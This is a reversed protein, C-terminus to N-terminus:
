ITIDKWTKNHKISSITEPAVGFQIGIAKCTAGSALMYKIQIVVAINLKTHSCNRSNEARTARRCNGPEYNGANDIRDIQLDTSPKCRMDSLFSEFSNAWESCMSIGKGGYKKFLSSAPKFCRARIGEWIRYEPPQKSYWTANSHDMCTKCIAMIGCRRNGRRYFKTVPKRRHCKTCVKTKMCGEIYSGRGLRSRNDGQPFFASEEASSRSDSQTRNYRLM